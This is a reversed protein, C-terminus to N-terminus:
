DATAAVDVDARESAAGLVEEALEQEGPDLGDLARDMARQVANTTKKEAKSGLLADYEGAIAALDDLDAAVESAVADAASDEIEEIVFEVADAAMEEVKEQTKQEVMERQRATDMIEVVHMETREANAPKVAVDDLWGWLRRFAEILDDITREEGDVEYVHTAPVFYCADRLRISDTWKRVLYYAMNNVDKGTHSQQHVEFLAKARQKFTGGRIAAELNDFETLDPAQDVHGWLAQLAKGEGIRDRFRIEGEDYRIIGLEQQRWRGDSDNTDEPPFYVRADLTYSYRSDNQALVFQVRNGKFEVEERGDLLDNIVRSFARHAEVEGPLMWEPIGLDAARELLAERDIRFDGTTYVVEYGFVDPDDTEGVIGQLTPTTGTSALKRDTKNATM